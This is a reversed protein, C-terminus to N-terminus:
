IEPESDSTLKVEAPDEEEGSTEDEEPKAGGDEETDSHFYKDDEDSEIQPETKLHGGGSDDSGPGEPEPTKTQPTEDEPKDNWGPILERIVGAGKPGYSSNKLIAGLNWSLTSVVM